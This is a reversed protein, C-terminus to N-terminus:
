DQIYRYFADLTEEAAAAPRLPAEAAALIAQAFDKESGAIWANPYDLLQERFEPIDSCVIKKSLVKAEAVTTSCGEFRSPQVYVDAFQMWPYPNAFAGSLIFTAQLGLRHVQKELEKKEPGDGIAYWKLSVNQDALLKCIRIARDYGKQKVLRGVTVVTLENPTKYHQLLPQEAMSQITAAPILNKVVVFRDSLAPFRRALVQRCHESVAAITQFYPFFRADLRDDYPYIDYNNHIFGIKRPAEVCEAVYYMSKREMYAIAIDATLTQEDFLNRVHNWGIYLPKRTVRQWICGFLYCISYWARRVDGQRLYNFPAAKRNASFIHFHRDEPLLTVGNPLDRMLEGDHYFLFLSVDFRSYDLETLLALLSKEAGGMRLSEMVFLLQKKQM